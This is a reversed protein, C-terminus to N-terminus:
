FPSPISSVSNIEPITTSLSFIRVQYPIEYGSLSKRVKEIYDEDSGSGAMIVACGEGSKMIDIFSRDVM